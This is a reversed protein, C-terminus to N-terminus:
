PIYKIAKLYHDRQRWLYEKGWKLYSYGIAVGALHAMHDLNSTGKWLGHLDFAVLGLVALPAPISVFPFFIVAIRIGPFHAAMGLLGCVGGSAGLGSYFLNRKILLNFLLSGYGAWVATMLYFFLFHERGGLYDHMTGGFTYLGIMNAALHWGSQHSFAALLLRVPKFDLRGSTRYTLTFYRELLPGFSPIRWLIFITANLAIISFLTRDKMSFSDWSHFLHNRAKLNSWFQSWKKHAAQFLTVQRTSASSTDVLPFIIKRRVVAAQRKEYDWISAATFLSLTFGSAFFFGRILTRKIYADEHRTYFSSAYRKSLSPRIRELFSVHLPRLIMSFQLFFFVFCNAHIGHGIETIRISQKFSPFANFTLM